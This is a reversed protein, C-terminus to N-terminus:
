TIGWKSMLYGIVAEANGASLTTDYMVLEGVWGYMRSTGGAVSPAAGIALTRAATFTTVANADTESNLNNYIIAQNAQLLIGMVFPTGVTVPFADNDGLDAVDASAAYPKLDGASSNVRMTLGGDASPGILTPLISTGTVINGVCFASCTIDSMSMGTNVHAITNPFFLATRGHFRDALPFCFVAGTVSTSNFSGTKDAMATVLGGAGRTVTSLDSPDYHAVYGSVPPINPGKIQPPKTSPHLREGRGGFVNNLREGVVLGKDATRLM